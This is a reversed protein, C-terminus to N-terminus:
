AQEYALAVKLNMTQQTTPLQNSSVNRDFEVKVKYTKSSGANISENAVNTIATGDSHTFTFNTYNDQTSSVGSLAPLSSMKADVTGSNEVVVTFEYFDGPNALTVAYSINLGSADVTPATTPTVSGATPTITGFHVNWSTANIKSTGNINLSASLYSYGITITCVLLLLVVIGVIKKKQM